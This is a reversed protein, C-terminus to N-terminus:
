KFTLPTVNTPTGTGVNSTYYSSIIGGNLIQLDTAAGRLISRNVFARASAGDVQLSANENGVISADDIFIRNQVAANTVSVGILNGTVVSNELFVDSASINAIDIGMGTGSTFNRISTNRIVVQNANLIRIGNLGTGFGDIDLGDLVIKDTAAANIIIGNTLSAAVGATQGVSVISISKTITVAGFGGPDLVNIEGKAATKSIAGAFTKCPATRSCPNVDDGVGSVWTRTAQANADGVATFSLCLLIVALWANSKM